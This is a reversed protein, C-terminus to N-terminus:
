SRMTQTAHTQDIANTAIYTTILDHIRRNKILLRQKCWEIAAKRLTTHFLLYVIPTDGLNLKIQVVYLFNGHVLIWIGHEAPALVEPIALIGMASGVYVTASFFIEVCICASQYLM